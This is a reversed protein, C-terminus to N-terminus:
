ICALAWIPIGRDIEKGLDRMRILHLSRETGKTEISTKTPTVISQLTFYKEKGM